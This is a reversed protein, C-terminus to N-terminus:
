AIARRVLGALADLFAPETNLAPVRILELGLESCLAKAEVDLDYLTEVHDALFGVPALAVRRAGTDAIRRLVSPLDPGLWEGGDAGQSQYALHVPRRLRAEIARVSSQVEVDYTDGMAIVRQPLSHATLVLPVDDPVTRRILETHAEIFRVDTGWPSVPAWELNAIDHESSLTAAAEKAANVYVDVSYPALPLLCVRRVGQALLQPLVDEVRPKWLRMGVAVPMGLRQELGAAQERTYRLLPSGGIASYRHRMEAILSEPAPRGRRVSKLFDPLESLDDITGHAILLVGTPIHKM